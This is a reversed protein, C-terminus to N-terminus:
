KEGRMSLTTAFPPQIIKDPKETVNRGWLGSLFCDDNKCMVFKNGDKDFCVEVVGGCNPCMESM